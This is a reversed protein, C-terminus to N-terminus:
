AAKKGVHEKFLEYKTKSMVLEAQEEGVWGTEDSEKEAELSTRLLFQEDTEDVKQQMDVRSKLM